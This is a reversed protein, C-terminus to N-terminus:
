KLFDQDISRNLFENFPQMKEFVQLIHDFFTPAVVKNDAVQHMVLYSKHKLWEINPNEPSYGKPAKKLKEGELKEFYKIYDPAKLINEFERPNYDIEQRISRLIDGSPMYVGGAIFSGSPQLHLYYTAYPAKKGGKNIAAGFNTKYPTKDKSFRIDRHIRFICDRAELAGIFPDIANLGSILANVISEFENKSELYWSKNKEMWERSNNEGLQELFNLILKFNM